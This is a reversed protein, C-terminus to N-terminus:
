KQTVRIDIRRNQAKGEPTDNSAVPHDQGYGEAELRKPDAGLKVLAQMAANARENSIKKNVAADGTNDTYGGLKLHVNPYAKLIAAINKLQEQSEAKLTSKGTEFYLRDFTFWTTKDVPKDKDEIFAILRNEVSNESISLETGDPLKKTLKAGLDRVFDGAENLKGVVAGAAAHAGAKVAAGASDMKNGMSDAQDSLHGAVKDMGSKNCGSRGLIWWLAALIIVLLIFWKLFGGGSKPAAAPYNLPTAKPLEVKPLETKPIEVDPMKLNALGLSGALGAPLAAAIDTKSESIKGLLDSIGWGKTAMIKSIFGTIVPVIMALLGSAKASSLGSSASVAETVTAEHSGFLGGLMSKGKEILSDGDASALDEAPATGPLLGDLLGTASGAGNKMIGGLVAPIAASFGTKVQDESVGAKQSLSSVLPGSLENKLMEILNM